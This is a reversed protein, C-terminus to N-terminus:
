ERRQMRELLGTPDDYLTSQLPPQMHMERAQELPLEQRLQHLLLSAEATAVFEPLKRALIVLWKDLHLRVMKSVPGLEREEEHLFRARVEEFASVVEPPEAATGM